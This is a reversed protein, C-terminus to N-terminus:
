LKDEAMEDLTKDVSDPMDEGIPFDIRTSYKNKMRTNEENPFDTEAVHSEASVNQAALEDETKEKAVHRLEVDLTGFSLKDSDKLRIAKGYAIREGNVFTGNTSGTDAVMLQNEGDLVLAAHLKSVSAEDLWLDNEKTRGVSKREKPSFALKIQRAQNGANFSAIFVEKEPEVIEKEPPAIIVNRLDPVTVNIANETENEDAFKDFSASLKVGETFYDPKIEFRIPAFTHYLRDNIHDIAATHLEHELKKLSQEADTSFKDWQMKLEIHHPVFQGKEGLDKAEADLLTKLKEILQSTALSSSPKWSRGTFRDFTEGLRTLIGRVFWDPSFHKKDNQIKNEEAMM